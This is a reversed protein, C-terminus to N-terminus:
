QVILKKTTTAAGQTLKVIYIGTNLTSINIRKNSVTTNIVQKGLIDFIAAQMAGSGTSTINVFDSKTPNPYLNFKSVEFQGAALTTTLDALNRVYLQATGNYAGTIGSVNALETSPIIEGIYDAGYFETRVVTEAQGQALVYNQGTAFVAAGDGASFTVNEFNIFTSEYDSPAANFGAITVTQAVVANDSSAIVGSDETPHLQLVGNVIVAKGKLGSVMDGVNYTTAIVDGADYIYIGSPTADQFWKKGKYGDKHTLLSGETIEYFGDPGNAAVDARLATINAVVQLVGVSFNTTDTDLVDGLSNKLETTVTYAGGEQVTISFPSTANPTDTSSMGTIVTVTVTEGGEVDNTVWELSTTPPGPALISEDSPAAITITPSVSYGDIVRINDVSIDEDGSGLNEFVLRIDISNGTGLSTTFETFIPTLEQGDGIGNLDTDQSPTSINYGTTETTAFQFIKTFSGSNDYDVEVYFLDGGDWDFNSDSPADEALLIALSLNSYTSIDIDEFLLTQTALTCPAGDTDMAAFFFSGDQGSVSYSSSIDTGDTRTFFDGGNDNCTESPTGSNGTEFSEQFLITQGFSLSSITLTLLLVYIKKM